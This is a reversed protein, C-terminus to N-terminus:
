RHLFVLYIGVFHAALIIVSELSVRGLRGPIPRLIALGVLGSLVLGVLTTIAHAQSGASIIYGDRYFIDSVLLINMNFINSGLVNGVALDIAGMRVAFISTVLEPLSTTAAVLLTGIFTRGLGTATAIMDASRSLFIAAVIVLGASILFEAWARTLSREKGALQVLASVNPDAAESIRNRRLNWIGVSYIALIIYVEVGVGLLGINPRTLLGLAAIASLLMGMFATALHSTSAVGLLAGRGWIIGAVALITMNYINSGFLDGLAIDVLRMSAAAGETAVEPLSTVAALLVSGIFVRGLGTGLAIEDAAATLRRSALFITAACIVFVLWALGYSM